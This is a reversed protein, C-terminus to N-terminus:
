LPLEGLPIVSAARGGFGCTSKGPQVVFGVIEACPTVIPLPSLGSEGHTIFAPSVTVTTGFGAGPQVTSLTWKSREIHGCPVATGGVRGGIGAGPGYM